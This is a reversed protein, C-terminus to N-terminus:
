LSVVAVKRVEVPKIMKNNIKERVMEIKQMEQLTYMREGCQVCVEENVGKIIYAAGEIMEQVEVIDEKTDGGCIPCKGVKLRWGRGEVPM